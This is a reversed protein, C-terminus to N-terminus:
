KGQVCTMLNQYAQQQFAKSEMVPGVPDTITPNAKLVEAMLSRGATSFWDGTRKGMCSCLGGMDKLGMLKIKEDQQCQATVLDQVPYSMCPAYVETLMKNLKDRSEPTSANMEQVDEVTMSKQMAAATCACLAEHSEATLRPDGKAMCNAYYTKATTSDIPTQAHAALPVFLIFALIFFIRTM